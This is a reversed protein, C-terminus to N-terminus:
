ELNFKKLLVLSNEVTAAANRMRTLLALLERKKGNDGVSM